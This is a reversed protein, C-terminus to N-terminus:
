HVIVKVSGFNMRSYNLDGPYDATYRYLGKTLPPLTFSALTGNESLVANAIFAKRRKKDVRFFEVAGGLRPAAVALLGPDVGYANPAFFTRDSMAPQVIAHLTVREGARVTLEQRGMGDGTASGNGRSLYLDGVLFPFSKESCNGGPQKLSVRTIAVYSNAALNLTTGHIIAKTAEEAALQNLSDPYVNGQTKFINDKATISGLSSDGNALDDFSVNDFSVANRISPVYGQFNIAYRGVSAADPALVHVNDFSINKIIPYNTGDAMGFYAAFEIPINLNRMCIGSYRVNSVSGGNKPRSKINLGRIRGTRMPLAQTLDTVGYTKMEQLSMGNVSTRTMKVVGGTLNSNEILVNSVGKSIGSGISIGNRSYGAVHDITINGAPIEWADIAIQDDGESITVDKVTANKGWINIGDTNPVNWVSQIKVGWVTLGDGTWHLCYFPANRLTVRYATFNNGAVMILKPINQSMGPKLTVTNIWWSQGATPGTSMKAWGRGDVVGYGYLGSNEAFSLLARCGGAAKSMLGCQAETGPVQYMKPDRSGFITVGGDVILSVRDPLKLPNILFADTRGDPSLALEVAMGEPCKDLATQIVLTQKTSVASTDDDTSISGDPMITLPARVVECVRPM